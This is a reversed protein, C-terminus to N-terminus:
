VNLLGKIWKLKKDYRVEDSRQWGSGRYWHVWIVEEDKILLQYDCPDFDLEPNHEVMRFALKLQKIQRHKDLYLAVHGGVDCAAIGVFGCWWNMTEPEPMTAMDMLVFGPWPYEHPLGTRGQPVYVMQYDQLWDSYKISKTPFMDFDLILVHDKEKSIHNNWAWCFAYAHAANPSGYTGDDSFVRHVPEMAQCWNALDQSYEVDIAKVNLSRCMEHISDYNRKERGFCCNVFVIYEFPDLVNRKLTEYQMRIFEPKNYVFTYIKM